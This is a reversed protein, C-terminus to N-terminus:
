WFKKKEVEGVRLGAIAWDFKGVRSACGLTSAVLLNRYGIEQGGSDKQDTDKPGFGFKGLVARSARDSFGSERERSKSDVGYRCGGGV